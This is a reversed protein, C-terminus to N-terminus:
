KVFVSEVIPLIFDFFKNNQQLLFSSAENANTMKLLKILVKKHPVAKDYFDQDVYCNGICINFIVELIDNLVYHPLSKLVMCKRQSSDVSIIDRIYPLSRSLIKPLYCTNM